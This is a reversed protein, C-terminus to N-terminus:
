GQFIAQTLGEAINGSVQVSHGGFLEGDDFFFEFSGEEYFLVSKVTLRDKFQSSTLKKEGIDLWSENKLGLLEKSAFSKIKSDWEDQSNWLTKAVILGQEIEGNHDVSFVLEVKKDTWKAKGIFTNKSKNLKLTGIFDTEIKTTKPTKRVIKEKLVLDNKLSDYIEVIDKESFNELFPFKRELENCNTFIQKSDAIILVSDGSFEVRQYNLNEPLPARFSLEGDRDLDILEIGWHGPNGYPKGAYLNILNSDLSFSYKRAIALKRKNPHTACLPNQRCYELLQDAKNELVDQLDFIDHLFDFEWGIQKEM